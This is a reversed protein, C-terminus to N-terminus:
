GKEKEVFYMDVEGKHKAAVKGRYICDFQDRVWEYTAGSINVKGVEGSSEMRSALNVTDGWIDYAFKNRGIVGAVLSGTNIGLRLEFTLEGKVLRELNWQRMFEQMELGAKVTDIPNTSNGNPIGGACMYADGITKIKELNHKAAIEDFKQFFFNLMEVIEQPQLKEAVQTFGKFDTFLVTVTEYYRPEAFGKEKLEEAVEKPLINLLLTEAKKKEAEIIAKQEQIEANKKALKRNALQRGILAIISIGVAILSAIIGLYLQQNKEEELKVIEQQKSIIDKQWRAEVEKQELETLDKKTNKEIKKLADSSANIFAQEQYVLQQIEKSTKSLNEDFEKKLTEEEFDTDPNYEKSNLGQKSIGKWYDLYKKVEELKALKMNAVIVAKCHSLQEFSSLKFRLTDKLLKESYPLMNQYQKAEFFVKALKKSSSATGLDNQTDQFLQHAKQYNKVKKAFSINPLLFDGEKEYAIAIANKDKSKEAYVIANKYFKEANNIQEMEIYTDALQISLQSALLSNNSKVSQNFEENLKKVKESLQQTELQFALCIFSFIFLWFHLPLNKNM